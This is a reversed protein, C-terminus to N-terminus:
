AERRRGLVAAEYDILAIQFRRKYLGLRAEVIAKQRAAQRERKCALLYQSDDGLRQVLAAARAADNSHVPKGARSDPVQFVEAAVEAARLAKLDTAARHWDDLEAAQLFLDEQVEAIESNLAQLQEATM